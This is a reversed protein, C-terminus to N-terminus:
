LEDIFLTILKFYDEYETLPLTDPKDHIDHYAQIGGLTYIFFSPVGSLYFPCHDSNCSKGRVKVQPLLNYRSNISQLSQFQKKFVSGNVVQIGDHGTGAIDFNLLFKIENLPFLTNRVFYYSGLLGLEEAGFAMFVITYKPKNISYHRAFDILMASGSANDNAGPFFTDPGMRGLHDYHASLVITSDSRGKIFGIINQTEYEPYFIADINLEIIDVKTEIADNNIICLPRESQKQSTHWTLKKNTIILIGGLEIEKSFQLKRVQEQIIKLNRKDVINTYNIILVHEKKTKLSRRLKKWDLVTKENLSFGKLHGHFTPSSPSVLYDRGAVLTKGDITLNVQNPLTNVPVDFSQFYSKNYKKLGIGEFKKAIFM